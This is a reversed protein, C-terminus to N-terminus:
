RVVKLAQSPCIQVCQPSGFCLDCKVYVKRIPNFVVINKKANYPCAEACLGCGKCESEDIFYVSSKEDFKIAGTPCAKACEPDACQRCVYAEAEAEFIKLSIKIRSLEPSCGGEHYLSCILECSRCWVCKDGNFEIRM